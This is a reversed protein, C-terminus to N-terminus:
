EGSILFWHLMAFETLLFRTRTGFSRFRSSPTASISVELKLDEAMMKARKLHWPDSVLLADTWGEQSLIKKAEVLNEQTTQSDTEIRIANAPIGEKVCYNLAVESESFPADKGHGGTLILAKVRGTKFLTIAHNLRERLVPSPKNHWAAAGLVIACEAKDDRDLHGVREIDWLQWASYTLLLLFAPIIYRRFRRMLSPLQQFSPRNKFFFLSLEGM